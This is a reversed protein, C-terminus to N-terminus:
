RSFVFIVRSLVFYSSGTPGTANSPSREDVIVTNLVGALISPVAETTYSNYIKM